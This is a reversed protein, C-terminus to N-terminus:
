LVKTTKPIQPAAKVPDSDNRGPILPAPATSHQESADDVFITWISGGSEMGEDYAALLNTMGRSMMETVGAKGLIRTSSPRFGNRLLVTKVEAWDSGDPLESLIPAFSEANSAESINRLPLETCIGKSEYPMRGQITLTYIANFVPQDPAPMGFSCVWYIGREEDRKRNGLLIECLPVATRRWSLSANKISLGSMDEQKNRKLWDFCAARDITASEIPFFDHGGKVSYVSIARCDLPPLLLDIVEAEWNEKQAEQAHATIPEMAASLHLGVITITGSIQLARWIGDSRRWGGNRIPETSAPHWGASAHRTM